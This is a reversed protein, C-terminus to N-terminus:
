AEAGKGGKTKGLRLAIALYSLNHGGREQGESMVSLTRQTAFYASKSQCFAAKAIPEGSALTSGAAAKGDHLIARRLWQISPSFGVGERGGAGFGGRGRLPM